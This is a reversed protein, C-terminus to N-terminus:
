PLGFRNLYIVFSSSILMMKLKIASLTSNTLIQPSDVLERDATPLAHRFLRWAFTKLLPPITKVKWIKNLITHTHPSIARSGTSPLSHNQQLYTHTAKSTCKGNTAPTWRLIDPETSPVLQINNITQVIQPTFTTTLIAQNWTQTDQMWLDSVFSPLPNNTVPL